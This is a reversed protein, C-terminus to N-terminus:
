RKKKPGLLLFAAVGAAGLGILTTTNFPTTGAAKAKAAAAAAAAQAEPTGTAPTDNGTASDVYPKVADVAAKGWNIYKDITTGGDGGASACSALEHISKNNLMQQWGTMAWGAQTFLGDDQLAAALTTMMGLDYRRLSSGCFWESLVLLMGDYTKTGAAALYLQDWSQLVSAAGFGRLASQGCCRSKKVIM